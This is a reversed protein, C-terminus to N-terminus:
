QAYLFIGDWTLQVLKTGKAKRTTPYDTIFLCDSIRKPNVCMRGIASNNM